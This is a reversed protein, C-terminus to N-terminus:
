PDAEKRNLRGPDPYKMPRWPDSKQGYTPQSGAGTGPSSKMRRRDVAVPGGPSGYAVGGDIPWGPKGSRSWTTPMGM